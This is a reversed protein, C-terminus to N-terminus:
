KVNMLSKERCVKLFLHGVLKQLQAVPKTIFYSKLCARCGTSDYAGYHWYVPRASFSDRFKLHVLDYTVYYM